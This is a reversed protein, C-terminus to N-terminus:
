NEGRNKYPFPVLFYPDFDTKVISKSLFLEFVDIEGRNRYPFRVLLFLTWFLGSNAKAISKDHLVKFVGM